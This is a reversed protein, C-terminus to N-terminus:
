DPASMSSVTLRKALEHEAQAGAALLLLDLPISGVGDSSVSAKLPVADPTVMYSRGRFRPYREALAYLGRRHHGASSGIEFALPNEPQDFILDVEDNGDRWHYLRVQSQLGLAHLHGAALNEMLMGMEHTNSLPLIGRQLAANRIAGDIFYLKRGRKQVSLESGSYNPLTFVLYARELYSLYRDFTPQSLGGLARCVSQPSLIGTIQGGLTYLVRELMLPDDISFAQPIDQYVAKVIADNRLTRQSQLILSQEAAGANIALLLEPFGGNLIFRRRHDALDTTHVNQDISADITADLTGQIPIPRSVKALELYETFLYPTLNQEEWRGVGSELRRNSIAATASSSGVLRLPWQEDYFTKLWTDWNVGYTIEDLFLYLPREPTWKGVDISAKVLSGVETRMLLPHDLRVWRIQQPPIGNNILRRVTQYM